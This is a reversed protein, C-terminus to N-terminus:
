CPGWKGLLTLLDVIGVDGDGDLDPPGGPDLGWQALLALLDTVGVDGNGDVDGTCCSVVGQQFEFAGMDLHCTNTATDATLPDDIFRPNGDFDTAAGPGTDGAADIAPSGPSLRGDADAFLPDADINGTGAWGGEIDSFSVTSNGPVNEAIPGPTSGWIVCNTIAATAGSTSGLMGGSDVASNDSFTCNTLSVSGGNNFVAGGQYGATNGIFICHTVTVSSLLNDMGGGAHAAANGVFACDTVTATSDIFNDLGAGNFGATNASFVCRTVTPSGAGSNYVGGGRVDAANGTFTCDSIAPSGGKNYMGGGRNIATNGTFVCNRVTPSTGLNFMGGGNSDPPGGDAIGGTITFGDLVTGPGEGTICSVVHWAGGGDIITAAVVGPDTPDTSSLTIAKGLFDIADLYTGAAVVIQDTVAAADLAAQISCFPDGETGSGPGPCNDASVFLVDGRAPSVVAVAALLVHRFM